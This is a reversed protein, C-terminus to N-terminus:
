KQKHRIMMLKRYLNPAYVALYFKVREKCSMAPIMKKRYQRMVRCMRPIDLSQRDVKRLCAEYCYFASRKQCDANGLRGFREESEWVLQRRYFRTWFGDFGYSWSSNNQHLRGYYWKQKLFLVDAGKILNEYIFWFDEGIFLEESFRTGEILDRRMMVGGIMNVPTNERFAAYLADECNLFCTEGLDPYQAILEPVKRWNNQPVSLVCSGAIAAGTKQMGEKLTELLRPHIVDDSDLFFLYEGRAEKLGKNRAASVGSHPTELFIIRSDKEKLCCCISKTGDTSGDDILLVEWNQYSQNQVSAVCEELMNERNYVPIIVSVMGKIDKM